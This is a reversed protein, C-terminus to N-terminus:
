QSRAAADLKEARRRGTLFWLAVIAGLVALPGAIGGIPGWPFGGGPPTPRVIRDILDASPRVWEGDRYLLGLEPYYAVRNHGDAWPSRQESRLVIAIPKGRGIPSPEAVAPFHDFLAAYGSLHGAERGAIVVETLRPPPFPHLGGLAKRLATATAGSVRLWAQPALQLPDARARLVGSNAVFFAPTVPGFAESAQKPSRYNSPELVFYAGMPPPAAREPTPLGPRILFLGNFFKKCGNAGCARVVLLGGGPQQATATPTIAMSAALVLVLSVARKM